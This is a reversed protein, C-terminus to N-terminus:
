FLLPLTCNEQNKSKLHEDLIWSILEETEPRPILTHQNVQFTLGYFETEGIIYQIPEEQILRKLADM